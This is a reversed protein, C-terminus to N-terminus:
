KKGILIIRKSNIDLSEKAYNGYISMVKLGNNQFLTKLEPVIYYRVGRSNKQKEKLKMNTFDFKYPTKHHKTLYQILRFVNDCDLLFLGNTKLVKSVNKLVKNADFLGFESFFLFIKNYKTKLNINHINQNYFKIQLNEQKALDRAINLLHDSFDLGDIDFSRKKIEITHRGHGCALDLIKDKKKIDLVDILFDVDKQLQKKTFYDKHEELYRGRSSYYKKLDM